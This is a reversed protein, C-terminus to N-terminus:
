QTGGHAANYAAVVAGPLRGIDQVEWGERKAWTRMISTSTFATGAADPAASEAAKPEATVAETGLLEALERETRALQERLVDAAITLVRVKEDSDLLQTLKVLQIHIATALQRVRPQPSAEARALLADVGSAPASSTPEEIYLREEEAPVLGEGPTDPLVADWDVEPEAPLKVEAGTERDIVPVDIPAAVPPEDLEACAAPEPKRFTVPAPHRLKVPADPVAAARAAGYRALAGAQDVAAAIQAATLGTREAVQGIPVKQMHLAVADVEATTLPRLGNMTETM